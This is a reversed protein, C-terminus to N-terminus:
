AQQEGVAGKTDALSKKDDRDVIAAVATNTLVNPVTRQGGIVRDIGSLLAIGELPLNVCGLTMSMMVISASPVGATGLAALLATIFVTIQQAMSLEVGAVQAIFMVAFGQYLASGSKSVNTGVSMIFGACAESVGLNSQLERIAVPMAAASSDTALTMGISGFINKMFRLPNMHVGILILLGQVIFIFFLLAVHLYIIFKALPLLTSLGYQGIVGAIIGCVGVPSFGIVIDTMKYMVKAVRDFFVKVPEATEGCLTICTGFFFAFVIVQLMNNNALANFVNDPFMNLLTDVVSLETTEGAEAAALVLTSGAGPKLLNSFVMGTLIALATMVIFLAFAKVAMKWIKSLDPISTLGSVISSFVLPLILMKLMRMFLSGLPSLITAKEKLVLGLIIGVAFGIMIKAFLPLKKIINM